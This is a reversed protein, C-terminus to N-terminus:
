ELVKWHSGVSGLLGTLRQGTYLARGLRGVAQEDESMGTPNGEDMVSVFGLSLKIKWFGM